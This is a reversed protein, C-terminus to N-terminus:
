GASLFTQIGAVKQARLRCSIYFGIKQLFFFFLFFFQRSFKKKIWFALCVYPNFLEAFSM